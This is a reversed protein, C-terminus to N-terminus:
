LARQFPQGAGVAALQDNEGAMLPLRLHQRGVLDLIIQYPDSPLIHVPRHRAYICARRCRRMYAGGARCLADCCYILRLLSEGAKTKKRVRLAGIVGQTYQKNKKM